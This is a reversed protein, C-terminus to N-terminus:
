PIAATGLRPEKLGSEIMRAPLDPKRSLTRRRFPSCLLKLIDSKKMHRGFTRLLKYTRIPRRFIRRAFLWAYGQM